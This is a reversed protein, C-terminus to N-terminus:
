RCVVCTLDEELIELPIGDDDDDDDNDDDDPQLNDDKLPEVEHINGLTITHPSPSSNGGLL